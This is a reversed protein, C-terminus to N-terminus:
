KDKIKLNNIRNDRKNGNAHLIPRSPWIGYHLFWAIHHAMYPKNQLRVEIHGNAHKCGALYGVRVCGSPRSKWRLTGAIPDYQLSDQIMDTPKRKMM